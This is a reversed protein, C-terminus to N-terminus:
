LYHSRERNNIITANREKFCKSKSAAPRARGLGIAQHILFIQQSTKHVAHCVQEIIWGRLRCEM